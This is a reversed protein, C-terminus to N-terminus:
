GAVLAPGTVRAVWDAPTRIEHLTPLWEPGQWVRSLLEPGGAREVENVFHEGEAYQRFKAELGLIQQLLRAPGRVQQRRERLIRSFRAAAPVADAGARDMTVDGHGELLSMLAQIRQIADLQEPTAVLGLVGAEGMPSRGSRLEETARKLADALRHPDAALPELGEDVLAMFHGRLWPVATFQCRHTVEHLALWLRFEKPVFGHRQELGVVNPGVYYVMDQDEAAEETILLDYQGLVRTSMWSLVLGLQAGSMTRGLGVLQRPMWAPAGPVGGEVRRAELKNLTPGLLRQISAVNVHVWGIRDTVRARAPGSPSRWGTAAAVLDEAQATLDEFDAQVAEARYSPPPPNRRVLWEAVRSAASWDVLSPAPADLAAGGAPADSM